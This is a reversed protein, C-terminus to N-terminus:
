RASSSTRLEGSGFALEMRERAAHMLVPDMIMEDVEEKSANRRVYDEEVVDKLHAGAKIRHIIYGLVKEEPEGHPSGVFLYEWFTQKKRTM